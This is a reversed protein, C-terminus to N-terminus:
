YYHNMSKTLGGSLRPEIGQEACQLPLLLLRRLHLVLFIMVAPLANPQQCISRGEALLDSLNVESEQSCVSLPPPCMPFDSFVILRLCFHHFSLSFIEAAQEPIIVILQAFM